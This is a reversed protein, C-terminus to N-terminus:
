PTIKKSEIEWDCHNVAELLQQACLDMARSHDRCFAADGRRGAQECVEALLRLQEGGVDGASGKIRHALQCLQEASASALVANQYDAIQSPLSARLVDIIRKIFKADGQVLDVLYQPNLTRTTMWAEPKADSGM